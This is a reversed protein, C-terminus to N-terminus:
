ENIGFHRQSGLASPRLTEELMGVRTEAYGQIEQVAAGWGKQPADAAGLFVDVGAPGAMARLEELLRNTAVTDRASHDLVVSLACPEGIRRALWRQLWFDIAAPLDNPGHASLFVMDAQAAEETAWDFLVPERLLDFRWFNVRFDVELKLLSAVADFERRARLGTSFDEYMLMVELWTREERAATMPEKGQALGRDRLQDFWIRKRCADFRV